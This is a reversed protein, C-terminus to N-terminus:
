NGDSKQQFSHKVVGYVWASSSGAGCGFLINASIPAPTELGLRLWIEPAMVFGSAIGVLMPLVPVFRQFESGTTKLIQKLGQVTGYISVCWASCIWLLDNM